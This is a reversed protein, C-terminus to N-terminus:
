KGEGQRTVGSNSDTYDEALVTQALDYIEKLPMLDRPVFPVQVGVWEGLAEECRTLIEGLTARLQPAQAFVYANALSEAEDPAGVFGTSALIKNPEDAAVVVVHLAQARSNKLTSSGVILNAKM